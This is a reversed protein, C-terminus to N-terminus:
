GTADASTDIVVHEGSFEAVAVALRDSVADVIAPALKGQRPVREGIFPSVLDGAEKHRDCLGRREVVRRRTLRRRRFPYTLFPGVVGIGPVALHRRGKDLAEEEVSVFVGVHFSPFGRRRMRGSTWVGPIGDRRRSVLIIGRESYQILVM